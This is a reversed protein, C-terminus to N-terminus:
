CILSSPFNSYIEGYHSEEISGGVCSHRPSQPTKDFTEYCEGSEMFSKRYLEPVATVVPFHQPNEIELSDFKMRKPNQISLDGLDIDVM